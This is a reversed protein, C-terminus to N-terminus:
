FNIRIGASVPYLEPGKNTDFLTSLSYNAFLQADDYGIRATLGYKFPNLNYDDNNKIRREEGNLVIVKKTKSTLKVGGEFGVGVFMRKDKKDIPIQIEYILPINLYLANLTNKQYKLNEVPINLSTIVGDVVVLDMNKTFSYNSWELGLGTVLGNYRCFLPISIETFNLALNWSKNPKLEMFSSETPLDFNLDSTVYNNLGFEFGAWNGKFKKHKKTKCSGDENDDCDKNNGFEENLENALAEMEIGLEKMEKELGKIEIKIVKNESDSESVIENTIISDKEMVAGDKDIKITIKKEIVKKTSDSQGFVSCSASIVFIAVIAFIKKLNLTKM